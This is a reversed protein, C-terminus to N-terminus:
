QIVSDAIRMRNDFQINMSFVYFTESQVKRCNKTNGYSLVEKVKRSWLCENYKFCLNMEQIDRYFSWCQKICVEICMRICKRYMDFSQDDPWPWPISIANNKYHSYRLLSVLIELLLKSSFKELTTLPKQNLYKNLQKLNSTKTHKSKSQIM